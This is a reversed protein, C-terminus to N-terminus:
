CFWFPTLGKKSDLVSQIYIQDEKGAIAIIIKSEQADPLTKETELRVDYITHGIKKENNTIWHFSINQEQLLKAIAKGKKGSGWLYISAGDESELEAFYSVKLALFRNDGYNSDTRSSREPYDRWHHLVDNVTMVKLGFKHMRFCLDYDEPYRDSDFAGIRDLTSRHMMWNPSPIVCEKYIDEFPQRSLLNDNLWKTYKKYGEGLENNSFYSVLGTAVSSGESAVSVLSNIKHSPMIDDADMRTIYAGRAHAYALRLAAIIGQGKNNHVHIRSDLTAFQALHHLTADTSHDNVVILEWETYSQKIISQICDDIYLAANKAPMLISVFKSM